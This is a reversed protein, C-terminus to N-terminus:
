INNLVSRAVAKLVANCSNQASQAMAVIEAPFVSTAGALLIFLIIHPITKAKCIFIGTRKSQSHVQQTDVAVPFLLILNYTVHM